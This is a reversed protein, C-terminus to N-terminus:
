GMGLKKMLEDIGMQDLGGVTGVTGSFTTSFQESVWKLRELFTSSIEKKLKEIPENIRELLKQLTETADILLAVCIDYFQPKDTIQSAKYSVAKCLAAYDGILHLSHTEPVLMALSKAGGMIRDVQNGYDELKKIQTFDGELGELLELMPEILTKSEQLFEDVIESDIDSM